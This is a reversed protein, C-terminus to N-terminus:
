LGASGPSAIKGTTLVDQPFNERLCPIRSQPFHIGEVVWGLSGGFAEHPKLSVKM